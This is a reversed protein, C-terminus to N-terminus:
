QSIHMVSLASFIVQINSDDMLDNIEDLIEFVTSGGDTIVAHYLCQVESVTLTKEQAELEPNNYLFDWFGYADDNEIFRKLEKILALVEKSEIVYGAKTVVNTDSAPKLPWFFNEMTTKVADMAREFKEFSYKGVVAGCCHRLEEQMEEPVYILAGGDQKVAELCVEATM